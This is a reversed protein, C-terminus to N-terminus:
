LTLALLPSCRQGVESDSADRHASVRQGRKYTDETVYLGYDHPTDTDPVAFEDFLAAAIDRFTLTPAFEHKHARLDEEGFRLLLM